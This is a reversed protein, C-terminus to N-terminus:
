GRGRWGGYSDGTAYTSQWLKLRQMLTNFEQGRVNALKSVWGILLGIGEYMVGYSGEINVVHGVAKVVASSSVATEFDLTFTVPDFTITQPSDNEYHIVDDVTFYRGTPHLPVDAPGAFNTYDGYLDRLTITVRSTEYETDIDIEYDSSGIFRVIDTPSLLRHKLLMSTIRTSTVKADSGSENLNEQVYTLLSM